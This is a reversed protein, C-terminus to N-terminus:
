HQWHKLKGAFPLLPNSIDNINDRVPEAQRLLLPLLEQWASPLPNQM